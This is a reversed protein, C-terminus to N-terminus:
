HSRFAAASEANREGHMTENLTVVDPFDIAKAIHIHLRETSQTQSNFFTLENGDHTCGTGPFGCQHVDQSTQVTRRLSMVPELVSINAFQPRILQRIDSVAFDSEHKLTEIQNRARARELICLQRQQVSPERERFLPRLGRVHKLSHPEGASLM